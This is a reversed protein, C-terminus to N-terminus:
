FDSFLGELANSIESNIHHEIECSIKDILADNKLKLVNSFFKVLSNYNNITNSAIRKGKKTMRISKRPKWDIYGKKALNHLMNSVSSPKINLFNSIESNTVWGGKHTKSILFIAKLYDEYSEHIKEM